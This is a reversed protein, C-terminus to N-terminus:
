SNVLTSTEVAPAAEVAAAPAAEPAPEPTPTVPAPAPTAEPAITVAHVTVAPSPAALAAHIKDLADATPTQSEPASTKAVRPKRTAKVKPTSTARPAKSVNDKNVRLCYLLARRGLGSESDPEATVGDILVVQSRPNIRTRWKSILPKGEKHLYMDAEMNKRLTLMTCNPGKGFRKSKPSTEVDNTRMLDTFTWEKRTPFKMTYRPRGPHDHTATSTKSKSNKKM